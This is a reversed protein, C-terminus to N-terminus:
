RVPVRRDDSLLGTRGEAWLQGYIVKSALVAPIPFTTYAGSKAKVPRKFSIITLPPAFKLGLAIVSPRCKTPLTEFRWTFRFRRNALRALTGHPRPPAFAPKQSGDRYTIMVRKCGAVEASAAHSPTLIVAILALSVLLLRPTV